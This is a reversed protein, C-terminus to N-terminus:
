KQAEVWGMAQRRKLAREYHRIEEVARTISSLLICREPIEPALQAHDHAISLIARLEELRTM